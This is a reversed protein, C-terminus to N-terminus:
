QVSECWPLNLKLMLNWKGAALIRSCQFPSEASTTSYEDASNELFIKLSSGIRSIIGCLVAVPVPIKYHDRWNKIKASQLLLSEM